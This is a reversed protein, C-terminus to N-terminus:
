RTRERESYKQLTELLTQKEQPGILRDVEEGDVFIILMPYRHVGYKEKIFLNNAVNLEGIKVKGRLERALQHITPRMEICPQCWPAYMDVLVPLDSNIVERRFNSDTFHLSVDIESQAAASEMSERKGCGALALLLALPLRMHSFRRKTLSNM